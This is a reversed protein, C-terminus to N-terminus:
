PQQDLTGVVLDALSGTLAWIIRVVQPRSHTAWRAVQYSLTEQGSPVSINVVVLGSDPHNTLDIYHRHEGGSSRSLHHTVAGDCGPIGPANEWGENQLAEVIDEVRM